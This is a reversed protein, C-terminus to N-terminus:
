LDAFTKEGDDKAELIKRWAQVAELYDNSSGKITLGQKLSITEEKEPYLICDFHENLETVNDILFLNSSNASTM